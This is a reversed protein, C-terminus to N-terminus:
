HPLLKWPSGRKKAVQPHVRTAEGTLLKWPSGRKEAVQPHVRTAEGPEPPITPKQYAGGRKIFLTIWTIVHDAQVRMSIRNPTGINSSSTAQVRMSIRNPTCRNSSKVRMSIRNPSGFNSSCTSCLGHVMSTTRGGYGTSFEIYRTPGMRVWYARNSLINGLAGRLARIVLLSLPGQMQIAVHADDQAAHANHQANAFAIM